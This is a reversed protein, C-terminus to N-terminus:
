ATADRERALTPRLQQDDLQVVASVALPHPAFAVRELVLRERGRTHGKAAHPRSLRVLRRFQRPLDLPPDGSPSESGLSRLTQAAATEPRLLQPVRSRPNGHLNRDDRIPTEGIASRNSRYVPPRSRAARTDIL